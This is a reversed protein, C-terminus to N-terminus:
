LASVSLNRLGVWAFFSELLVRGQGFVYPLSDVPASWDISGIKVKWTSDDMSVDFPVFGSKEPDFDELQGVKEDHHKMGNDQELTVWVSGDSRLYALHGKDALYSQSRLMIGMWPKDVPNERAVSFRLDAKVRVNRLQLEALTLWSYRFNYLSGFELYREPIIRRHGPGPSWLLHSDVGDTLVLSVPLKIEGRPIEEFPASALVDQITTFLAQGLKQFGSPTRDYEIHRAPLIDFLRPEDTRNERVIIVKEKKHWAASVGLEFLVNGNLGSVDAVIIDALGIAQWIEPHIIGSSTIDVARKCEVEIGLTKGLGECITKVLLFLDDFLTKPQTPCLVFCSLRNVHERTIGSPEIHHDYPWVSQTVPM